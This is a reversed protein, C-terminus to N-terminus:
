NTCAIVWSHDCEYGATILADGAYYDFALAATRTFYNRWDGSIGKHLFDDSKVVGPKRGTKYFFDNNGIVYQLHEMDIDKGSVLEYVSTLEKYPSILMNEYRVTGMYHQKYNAWTNIHNAYKKGSLGYKAMYEIFKPLNDEINSALMPIGLFRKIRVLQHKEAERLLHFYASIMIDRGDRLMYITRKRVSDWPIHRHTHIIWPGSAPWNMNWPELIPIVFLESLLHCLWNTGSKPHGLVYIGQAKSLGSIDMAVSPWYILQERRRLLAGKTPFM